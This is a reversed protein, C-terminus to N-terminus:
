EWIQQKIQAIWLMIVREEAQLYANEKNELELRLQECKMEDYVVRGVITEKIEAKKKFM